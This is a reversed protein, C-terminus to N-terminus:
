NMPLTLMWLGASDGSSIRYILTQKRLRLVRADVGPVLVDLPMSADARRVAVDALLHQAGTADTMIQTNAMLFVNVNSGYDVLECAAPALMVAPGSGDVPISMANGVPVTGDYHAESYWLAHKSDASFPSDGQIGTSASEMTIPAPLSTTGTAVLSLDRLNTMPPSRSFTMTKFDGSRRLVRDVGFPVIATPMMAPYSAVKLAHSTATSYVFRNSAVAMYSTVAETDAIPTTAYTGMDLAFLHGTRDSYLVFSRDTSVVLTNSVDSAVMYAATNPLDLAWLTRSKTTATPDVCVAAVASISSTFVVGPACPGSYARRTSDWQGLEFGTILTQKAGGMADAFVLDATITASTTDINAALLAHKWDLSVASVVSQSAVTTLTTTQTVNLARVTGRAPSTSPPLNFTLWAVSFGGSVVYAFSSAALEVPQPSGQLSLGYLKGNQTYAISSLDPALHIPTALGGSAPVILTGLSSSADFTNADSAGVDSAEADTGSTADPHSVDAGTSADAGLNSSASSCAATAGVLLVLIRKAM